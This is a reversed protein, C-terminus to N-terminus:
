GVVRGADARRTRRSARFAAEVRLSFLGPPSPSVRLGPPNPDANQAALFSPKPELNRRVTGFRHERDKPDDGDDRWDYFISLNVGTALNALWQRVLYQAQRAESVAGEATSYGWESSVIPLNQREPPAYARDPASAAM